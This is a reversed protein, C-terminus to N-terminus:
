LGWNNILNETLENIFDNFNKTSDEKMIKRIDNPELGLENKLFSELYENDATTDNFTTKTENKEPSSNHEDKTKNIRDRHKMTLEIMNFHNSAYKKNYDVIEDQLAKYKNLISQEAAIREKEVKDNENKIEQAECNQACAYMDKLSTYTKGCIPCRYVRTKM